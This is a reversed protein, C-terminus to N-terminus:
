QLRIDVRPLNASDGESDITSANIFLRTSDVGATEVLYGKVSQARDDALKSLAAHDGLPANHDAAEGSPVLIHPRDPDDALDPDAGDGAVLDRRSAAGILRLSVGPHKKMIKAIEDLYGTVDPGVNTSALEFEVPKFLLVEDLPADDGGRKLLRLPAFVSLVSKKMANTMAKRIIGGIKFEPSDLNGEVPISLEITGDGDRLLSVAANVPMGLQNDLENLEDQDLKNLVLNVMSLNNTTQLQARNIQINSDVGFTGSEIEYGINRQSYGSFTTLDLAQLQAQAGVTPQAALLTADGSVRLQAADGLKAEITVPNLKDPAQSDLGQVKILLDNVELTAIPQISHDEVEIFSEGEIRAQGIRFTSEPSQIPREMLPLQELTAREEAAKQVTDDSEEPLFANVLSLVEVERDETVIAYGGFGDIVVEEVVSSFQSLAVDNVTISGITAVYADGADQDHGPRQLLRSGRLIASAIRLDRVGTVEIGEVSGSPVRAIGLGSDSNVVIVNSTEAVGRVDLDLAGVGDIGIAVAFAGKVEGVQSSLPLSTLSLGVSSGSLEVSSKLSIASDASDVRMDSLAVNARAIVAEPLESHIESSALDQIQGRVSEATISIRDGLDGALENGDIEGSALVIRGAEGSLGSASLGSVSARLTEAAFQRRDGLAFELQKAAIEVGAILMEDFTESPGNVLVSDNKLEGSLALTTTEGVRMGVAGQWRADAIDIVIAQEHDALQITAVSISGDSDIIPADFTGGVAIKGDWTIAEMGATYTEYSAAIEGLTLQGSIDAELLQEAFQLTVGADFEADVVGVLDNVGSAAALAAIDDLRFQELVIRTDLVAMEDFPTTTGSLHIASGNITLAMEFPAPNTATWTKLEDIKGEQVVVDARILRQDFLLRVDRIAVSEAGLGFPLEFPESPAPEPSSPDIVIKGVHWKGSEDLRVHVAIDEVVVRKILVNRKFLAFWDLVVHVHGADLFGEHQEGGRLGHVTLTATFPNFDVNDVHAGEHGQSRLVYEIGEGIVIPFVIIAIIAVVTVAALLYLARRRTFWRRKPKATEEM